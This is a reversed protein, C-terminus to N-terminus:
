NAEEAKTAKAQLTAWSDSSDIKDPSYNDSISTKTDIIIVLPSQTLDYRKLTQQSRSQNTFDSLSCLFSISWLQWCFLWGSYPSFINFHILILKEEGQWDCIPWRWRLSVDLSFSCFRREFVHFLAAWLLASDLGLYFLSKDADLLCHWPSSSSQCHRSFYDTLM